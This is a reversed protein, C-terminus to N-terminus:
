VQSVSKVHMQKLARMEFRFLRLHQLIANNNLTETCKPVVDSETQIKFLLCCLVASPTPM